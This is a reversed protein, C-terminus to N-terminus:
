PQLRGSLDIVKAGYSDELLKTFLLLHNCM